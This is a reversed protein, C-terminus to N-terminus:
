FDDEAAHNEGGHYAHTLIDGKRLTELIEAMPVPSHNCHVMVRWGHAAAYDCVQRLPAIDRVETGTTDYYIKLGLMYKGYRAARSEVDSFDPINDRIPVSVLVASRVSFNNLLAADGKTGEADVAATVGFPITALAADMGYKDCSIGKLHTHIDVLGASVILGTADYTWDASDAINPEIKAIIKGDTLIDAFLFREGDFIRGNKILIRAM